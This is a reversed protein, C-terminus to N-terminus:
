VPISHGILSLTPRSPAIAKLWSLGMGIRKLIAEQASSTNIPDKIFAAGVKVSHVGPLCGWTGPLLYAHQNATEVQILCSEM